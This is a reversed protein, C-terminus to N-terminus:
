IKMHYRKFCKEVIRRIQHRCLTHECSKESFLRTAHLTSHGEPGTSFTSLKAFAGPCNDRLVLTWAPRIDEEVIRVRHSVPLYKLAIFDLRGLSCSAM